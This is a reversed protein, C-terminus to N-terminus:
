GQAELMADLVEDSDADEGVMAMAGGIQAGRPTLRLAAKGDENTHSEILGADELMAVIADMEADHDIM